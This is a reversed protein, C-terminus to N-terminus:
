WGSLNNTFNTFYIKERKLKETETKWVFSIQFILLHTPDWIEGVTQQKKINDVKKWKYM